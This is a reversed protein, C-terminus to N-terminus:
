NFKPLEKFSHSYKGQKVCIVHNKHVETIKYMKHDQHTFCYIMTNDELCTEHDSYTITKECCHNGLARKILIKKMIQKLTSPTGPTFSKRIEGYFSEFGFASTFTLPGHNRMLPLHSSVVHTNYTCNAEGFISEYLTYFMECIPELDPLPQFEKQPLICARIMYSFLLWVKRERADSEICNIVVPFFFLTINRFEQAKMVAFDLERIRRSFEDFVKINLLKIESNFSSASSLKRKSNKTRKEGVSFTLEIMRKTVGLCTSHMYETPSDLVFDFNPINFLPSKGTVGKAEAHPLSGNEEIENAIALVNETTRPNGHMTSVPWVLKSRGSKLQKETKEVEKQIASVNVSGNKKLKQRIKKLQKQTNLNDKNNIKCPVARSFCYECAFSASHCLSYKGFARKLNDAIYQKIDDGNDILEQIFCVFHQKLDIDNCKVLPRVIRHPFITQCKTLRSSYVDLSVSTSKTEAM